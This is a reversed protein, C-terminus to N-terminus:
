SGDPEAKFGCLGAFAAQGECCVWYTGWPPKREISEVVLLIERLAFDGDEPDGFGLALGNAFHQSSLDLDRVSAPMLTIPM